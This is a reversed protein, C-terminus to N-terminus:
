LTRRRRMWSVLGMGLSGLLLAGPAPICATEVVYQLHDVSMGNGIHTMTIQSIGGANSVGFFRDEATQGTDFPDGLTYPGIGGLYTGTSDWAEFTVDARDDTWVLGASTPFAGLVSDDFSFTLSYTGGQPGIWWTHGNTGFGDIVGDDADVSDTKPGPLGIAGINVTVGPVNLAADEFDELYAGPLSLDFPSDATSLYPSPGFFVPAAAIASASLLLIALPFASARM